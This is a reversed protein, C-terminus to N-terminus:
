AGGGPVALKVYADTGILDPFGGFNLIQGKLKCTERLKDCGETATLLDGVEPAAALPQYATVLGSTLAYDFVEVPMTGALGGSTFELLGNLIEDAAPHPSTSWSVTFSMDDNVSTVQGSWTQPTAQCRSRPPDNAGFDHSCYPTLVRGITQNYASTASLVEIVFQGGEVRTSGVRGAMLAVTRSTNQWDVDFLRARAQRFRGGLVGARTVVDGIPGRVEFSDVDMGLSLSVASPIAGVDARYISGPSNGLNVFLDQDHTTIALETGDRLDLLLCRALATHHAALQTAIGAPITRSM